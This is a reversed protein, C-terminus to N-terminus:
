DNEDDEDDYTEWFGFDSGDGEHSGFYCGDPALGNLADFLDENVLYEAAEEDEDSCFDDDEIREIIGNAESILSVYKGDTDLSELESTFSQLLDITRLTGHSISGITADM